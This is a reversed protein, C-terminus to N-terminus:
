LKEGDRFLFGLVQEPADAVFDAVVQSGVRANERMQRFYPHIDAMVELHELSDRGWAAFIGTMGMKMAMAVDRVPHDGVMVAQGPEVGFEACIFSFVEPHSKPGFGDSNLVMRCAPKGEGGLKVYEVPCAPDHVDEGAPCACLIDFFSAIGIMHMRELVRTMPSESYCALRIGRQVMDELVELMGDYPKALRAINSDFAAIASAFKETLNEGPYAKRLVPNLPVTKPYHFIDCNEELVQRMGSLIEDAAIGSQESLDAVLLRVAQDNTGFNEWLTNDFDFIALRIDRM